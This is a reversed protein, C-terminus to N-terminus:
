ATPFRNLWGADTTEEQEERKLEKVEFSADGPM